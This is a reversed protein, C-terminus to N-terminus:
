KRMARDLAENVLGDAEKNKERSINRYIIKARLEGEKARVEIILNRLNANKIKYLGNLQSVVLKSDLFFTIRSVYCMIHSNKNLWNLAAIVARYEAMNNTARGIFKGEQHLIKGKEDKILFGIAAPGPNGRAGGDCFIFLNM